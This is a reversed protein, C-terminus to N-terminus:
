SRIEEQPADLYERLFDLVEETTYFVWAKEVKQRLVERTIARGVEENFSAKVVFGNEQKEVSCRRHRTTSWDVGAFSHRPEM